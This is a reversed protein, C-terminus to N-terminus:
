GLLERNTVQRIDRISTSHEATIPITPNLDVGDALGQQIVRPCSGTCRRFAREFTRLDRFGVEFAIATISLQRLRLLDLARRVRIWQVWRRYGIGATERFYKSFYTRELGTIRAAVQLPLPEAYNDNVFRVLKGLRTANTQARRGESTTSM